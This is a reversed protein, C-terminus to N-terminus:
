KKVIRDRRRRGVRSELITIHDSLLIGALHSFRFYIQLPGGLPPEGFANM